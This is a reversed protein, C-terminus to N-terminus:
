TRNGAEAPMRTMRPLTTQQTGVAAAQRTLRASAREDNLIRACDGAIVDAVLVNDNGM